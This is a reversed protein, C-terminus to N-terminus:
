CRGMLFMDSIKRSAMVSTKRSPIVSIMRSPIVSVCWFWLLYWPRIWSKLNPPV